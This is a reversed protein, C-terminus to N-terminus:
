PSLKKNRSIINSQIVKDIDEYRSDSREIFEGGYLVDKNDKVECFAEVLCEKLSFNYIKTLVRLYILIYGINLKIDDVADKQNNVKFALEGVYKMMAILAFSPDHVRVDKLDKTFEMTSLLSVNKMVIFRIM